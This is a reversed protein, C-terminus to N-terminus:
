ARKRKKRHDMVMIVSTEDGHKKCFRGGRVAFSKRKTNMTGCIPCEFIANHAQSRESGRFEGGRANVSM